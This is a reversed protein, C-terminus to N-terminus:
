QKVFKGGSVVFTVTSKAVVTENGSLTNWTANAQIILSHTPGGNYFEVTYGEPFLTMDAQLAADLDVNIDGSARNDVRSYDDTPSWAYDATTFLDDRPTNSRTGFTNSYWHARPADYTMTCGDDCADLTNSYVEYADREGTPANGSDTILRAWKGGSNVLTNGYVKFNNQTLSIGWTLGIFSGGASSKTGTNNRITIDDYTLPDGQYEPLNVNTINIFNGAGSFNNTAIDVNTASESLLIHQDWESFSCGSITIGGNAPLGLIAVGNEEGYTKEATATFTSDTISIQHWAQRAFCEMANYCYRVTSNSMVVSPTSITSASCYELTTGSIYVTRANDGGGYITEGRYRDFHCDTITLPDAGAGRIANNTWDWGYGDTANFSTGLDAAITLASGGQETSIQFTSGSANIVYFPTTGDNVEPPSTNGFRLITDNAPADLAGGRTFVSAAVTCGYKQGGNTANDSPDSTGTFRLGEFTINQRRTVSNDLQFSGGRKIRPAANGDGIVQWTTQPDAGDLTYFALTTTGAGDGLFKINDTNVVFVSSFAVENEWEDDGTLPSHKYTGAPFYVTAVSPTNADAWTEAATLADRIAVTDNTTGNGTAGYETVDFTGASEVPTPTSLPRPGASTRGNSNSAVSPSYSAIARGNPGIVPM